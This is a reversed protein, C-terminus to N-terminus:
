RCARRAMSIATCKRGNLCRAVNACKRLNRAPSSISHIGDAESSRRPRTTVSISLTLDLAKNQLLMRTLTTKGAGSPSSLILMLGRRAIKYHTPAINM